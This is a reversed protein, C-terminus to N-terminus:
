GNESYFVACCLKMEQFWDGVGMEFEQKKKVTSIERAIWAHEPCTLRKLFNTFGMRIRENKKLQKYIEKTGWEKM